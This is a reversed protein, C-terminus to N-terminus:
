CYVLHHVFSRPLAPAGFAPTAPSTRARPLRMEVFDEERQTVRCPPPQERAEALAAVLGYRRERGVEGLRGCLDGLVERYQLTGAEDRAPNGAPLMLKVEFPISDLGRHVPKRTVALKPM